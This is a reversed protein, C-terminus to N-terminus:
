GTTRDKRYPRGQVLRGCESVGPGGPRLLGPYGREKFADEHKWRRDAILIVYKGHVPMRKKTANGKEDVVGARKAIDMVRQQMREVGRAYRGTAESHPKEFIANLTNRLDKDGKSIADLFRSVDKLAFAGVNKVGKLAELGDELGETDIMTFAQRAEDTDLSYRIDNNYKDFLGINDTASKIQSPSFVAISIGAEDKVYVGDYGNRKWQAVKISDEADYWNYATNPTNVPNVVRLYYEGIYKKGRAAAKAEKESFGFYITGASNGSQFEFFRANSAHYVVKPTGDANRVKSDKFWEKFQKTDTQEVYKRNVPSKADHISGILGDDLNLMGPLQLGAARLLALAETKNWYYVGNGDNVLKLVADKLLKTIANGKGFTTSINNSDITQGNVRSTGDIWIASIVQKGNVKKAIIAVVSDSKHSDSEIVAVPKGLLDPLSKLMSEGIVHDRDGNKGNLAYDCHTQDITMPLTSLGIQQYLTPTGGLILNDRQKIKGAKWDDVQEAFPKSYDYHTDPDIGAERLADTDLSFKQGTKQEYMEQVADVINAATDGIADQVNFLDGAKRRTGAQSEIFEVLKDVDHSWDMSEDLAYQDRLAEWLTDMKQATAFKSNSEGVLTVRKGLAKSIANALQRLNRESYKVDAKLSDGIGIVDPFQERLAARDDGQDKCNCRLWGM